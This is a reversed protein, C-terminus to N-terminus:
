DLVSAMAMGVFANREDSGGERQIMFIGIVDKKPDIFCYTGYRGGHGYTGVSVGPLTTGDAFTTISNNTPTTVLNNTRLDDSHFCMVGVARGVLYQELAPCGPAALAALPWPMAVVAACLWTFRRTAM